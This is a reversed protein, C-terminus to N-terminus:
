LVRNSEKVKDADLYVGYSQMYYTACATVVLLAMLVTKGWPRALMMGLLVSHLGFMLAFLALALRWQEWGRGLAAHWFPLNCALAFYASALMVLIEVTVQPRWQGVKSAMGPLFVQVPFAVSSM